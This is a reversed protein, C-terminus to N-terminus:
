MKAEVIVVVLLRDSLIQQLFIISMNNTMPKLGCLVVVQVLM